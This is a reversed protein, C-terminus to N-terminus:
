KKIEAQKLTQEFKDWSSFIKRDDSPVVEQKEGQAQYLGHRSLSVPIEGNEDIFLVSTPANGHILMGEKGAIPFILFHPLHNSIGMALNPETSQQYFSMTPSLGGRIFTAMNGEADGLGIAAGGDRLPFFTGVIEQQENKMIMAPFSGGQLQLRVNGQQDNLTLLTNETDGQMIISPIGSEGKLILRNAELTDASSGQLWGWLFVGLLCILLAFNAVMLFRNIKLARALSM